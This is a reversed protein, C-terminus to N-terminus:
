VGMGVVKAADLLLSFKRETLRRIRKSDRKRKPYLMKSADKWKPSSIIKQSVRWREKKGSRSTDEESQSGADLEILAPTKDTAISELEDLGALYWYKESQNNTAGHEIFFRLNRGADEDDSYSDHELIENNKSLGIGQLSKRSSKAATYAISAATPAEIFSSYSAPYGVPLLKPHKEEERKYSGKKIYLSKEPFAGELRSLYRRQPRELPPMEQELTKPGDPGSRWLPTDTAGCVLCRLREVM